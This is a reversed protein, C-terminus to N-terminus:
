CRVVINRDSRMINPKLPRMVLQVSLSVHQNLTGRSTPPLLPVTLLVMFLTLLLAIPFKSKWIKWFEQNSKRLLAEHLDNTFYSAEAVQEERIRKKYLLKDKIYRDRICMESGM